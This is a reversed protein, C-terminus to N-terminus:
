EKGTKLLNMAKTLYEIAGEIDEYEIASSAFKCFKQAKSTDASTLQVAAQEQPARPRPVPKISVASPQSPTNYSANIAAPLPDGFGITATSPGPQPPNFYTAPPNGATSLGPQSPNFYATPPNGATSPEPQPPNFYATPLDGTSSPGPQSPSDFSPDNGGPPGPTPVIGSKLCRDIEVAKWKAYKM